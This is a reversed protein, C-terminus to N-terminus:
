KILQLKYIIKSTFWLNEFKAIIMLRKHQSKLKSM